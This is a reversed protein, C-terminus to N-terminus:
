TLNTDVIVAGLQHALPQESITIIGTTVVCSSSRRKGEEDTDTDHQLVCKDSKGEVRKYKEECRQCKQNNAYQCTEPTACNAINKCKKVGTRTLVTGGTTYETKLARKRVGNVCYFANGGCKAQGTRASKTEGISYYGRSVKHAKSHKCYVAPSGCPVCKRTFKFGPPCTIIPFLKSNVKNDSILALTASATFGTTMITPTIVSTTTIAKINAATNIVTTTTTDITTVAIATHAITTSTATTVTATTTVTTTQTTTIPVPGAFGDFTDTAHDGGDIDGRNAGDNASSGDDYCDSIGFQDGIGLGAFINGSGGTIGLDISEGCPGFDFGRGLDLDPPDLDFFELDVPGFVTTSVSSTSTTTITTSTITTTTIVNTTPVLANSRKTVGTCPGRACENDAGTMHCIAGNPM